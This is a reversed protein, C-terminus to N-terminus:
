RRTVKGGKVSIKPYKDAASAPKAPPAPAAPTAPTTAPATVAAAPQTAVVPAPIRPAEVPPSQPAPSPEAPVVPTAAVAPPAPPAAPATQPPAPATEQRPQTAAAPKPSASAPAPPPPTPAVPASIPPPTPPAVPKSEAVPVVAAVTAAMTTPAPAVPLSPIPLPVVSPSAAAAPLAVVPAATPPPESEGLEIGADLLDARAEELRTRMAEVPIKEVLRAAQEFKLKARSKKGEKAAAAIDALLIEFQPMAAVSDVEARFQELRALKKELAPRQPSKPPMKGLTTRYFDVKGDYTEQLKEAPVAAELDLLNCLEESIM